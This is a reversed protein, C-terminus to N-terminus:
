FSLKENCDLPSYKFSKSGAEENQQQEQKQVINYMKILKSVVANFTTGDKRRLQDLSNYNTDWLTVMKWSHSM